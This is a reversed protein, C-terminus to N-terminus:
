RVLHSIENTIEKTFWLILIYNQLKKSVVTLLACQPLKHVDHSAHVCVIALLPGLTIIYWVRGEQNQTEITIM